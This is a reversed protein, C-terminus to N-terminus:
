RYLAKLVGWSRPIAPVPHEVVQLTSQAWGSWAQHSDAVQLNIMYIQGIILQGMLTNLQSWTLSLLSTGVVRDATGDDNLDWAYSVIYDSPADPDYSQSGDLTVGYGYFIVYPGDANAVPPNNQLALSHASGACFLLGAIFCAGLLFVKAKALVMLVGKRSIWLYNYGM